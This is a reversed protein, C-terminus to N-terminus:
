GSTLAAGAVTRGVNIDGRDAASTAPRYGQAGLVAADSEFLARGFNDNEYTRTVTLATWHDTAEYLSDRM